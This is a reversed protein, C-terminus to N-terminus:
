PRLGKPMDAWGIVGAIPMGSVDRWTEGDYYGPWTPESHSDDLSLMVTTDADPLDKRWVLTELLLTM